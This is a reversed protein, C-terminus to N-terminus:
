TRLHTALSSISFWGVHKLNRINRLLADDYLIFFHYLQNPWNVNPYLGPKVANCYSHRKSCFYRFYKFPKFASAKTIKSIIHSM